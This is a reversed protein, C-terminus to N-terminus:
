LNNAFTIFFLSYLIKYKSVLWKRSMTDNRWETIQNNLLTSCLISPTKSSDSATETKEKNLFTVLDKYNVTMDDDVKVIWQIDHNRNVNEFRNCENQDQYKACAHYQRGVNLNPLNRMFGWSSYVTM